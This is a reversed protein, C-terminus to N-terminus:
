NIPIIGYLIKLKKFAIYKKPFPPKERLRQNHIVTYESWNTSERTDFELM